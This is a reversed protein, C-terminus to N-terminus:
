ISAGTNTPQWSKNDRIMANVITLLKRMCAVMAVMRPKGAARLREYFAKLVPNHRVGVWTAMFLTARLATRGGRISRRGRMTGSDRNMPAIGALAAIERRTLRGLEPLQVLLNRSVVPGICPVEIMLEVRERWLPSARIATDLDADASSLEQQLWSLHAQLRLILRNASAQKLRNREATLMEVVQRRRGLLEALERAAADPLPRLDPRIREAFLAIVAADLADTKALKGTARAFDRIQRPNIVAVPLRAAALAAAVSIEFGGTAELVILAPAVAGLRAVLDVLGEPTRPTSFAEGSPRIHVDLQAKSVDIGVFCHTDPLTNM